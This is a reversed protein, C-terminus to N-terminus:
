RSNSTRSGARPRSQDPREAVRAALAEQAAARGAAGREGAFAQLVLVAVADHEGAGHGGARGVIRSVGVLDRDDHLVADARM